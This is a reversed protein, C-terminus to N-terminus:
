FVNFTHSVLEVLLEVSSSASGSSATGTSIQLFRIELWTACTGIGRGFISVNFCEVRHLSMAM